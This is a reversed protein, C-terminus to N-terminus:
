MQFDMLLNLTTVQSFRSPISKVFPDCYDGCMMYIELAIM